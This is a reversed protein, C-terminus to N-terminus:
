GGSAGLRSARLGRGTTTNEGKRRGSSERGRGRLQLLLTYCHAESLTRVSVCHVLVGNTGAGAFCQERSADVRGLRRRYYLCLFCDGGRDGAEDIGNGRREDTCREADCYQSHHDGTVANMELQNRYKGSADEEERYRIIM